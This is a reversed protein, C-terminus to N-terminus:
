PKLEFRACHKPRVISFDRRDTTLVTRIKLREAVAVITADVFGLASDAYKTMVEMTRRLDEKKLFEVQLEERRISELFPIEAEAGLHTSILYCVEPLVTIPVVLTSRTTNLFALVRNHWGDDRDMMAYLPGTDVLLATVGQAKSTARDM